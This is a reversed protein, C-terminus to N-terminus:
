FSTIVLRTKLKAFAKWNFLVKKETEENTKTQKWVKLRQTHFKKRNTNNDKNTRRNTWISTKM